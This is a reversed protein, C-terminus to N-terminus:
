SSDLSDTFNSSKGSSQTQGIHPTPLSEKELSYFEKSIKKDNLIFLLIM